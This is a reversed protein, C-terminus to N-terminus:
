RSSKRNRQVPRENDSKQNLSIYGWLCAVAIDLLEVKLEENDNQHVAMLAEYWEETVVGIIEHPSVLSNTGKKELKKNFRKILDEVGKEIESFEMNRREM